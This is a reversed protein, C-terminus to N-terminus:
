DKDGTKRYDYVIESQRGSTHNANSSDGQEENRTLSLFLLSLVVGVLLGFLHAEWSVQNDKPIVGYLIGGYLFFVALSIVVLAPRKSLLGGCFAFGFLGYIVGSAGIHYAERALTWVLFGTIIYILLLVVNAKDPYGYYLAAGLITLPITNSILHSLDAHIMPGLIIGIAGSMTRPYIGLWGLDIDLLWSSFHVVCMLLAMMLPIFALSWFETFVKKM